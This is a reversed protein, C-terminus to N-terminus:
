DKPYTVTYTHCTCGTVSIFPVTVELAGTVALDGLIKVDGTRTHSIWILLLNLM